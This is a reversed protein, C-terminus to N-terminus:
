KDLSMSALLHEYPPEDKVSLGQGSGQAGGGSGGATGAPWGGAGTGQQKEKSAHRSVAMLDGSGEQAPVSMIGHPDAQNSSSCCVLCAHRHQTCCHPALTHLWPVLGAYSALCTCAEVVRSM